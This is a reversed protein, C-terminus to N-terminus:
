ECVCTGRDGFLVIQYWDYYHEAAPFTVTPGADFRGHMVSNLSEDGVVLEPSKLLLSSCAVL